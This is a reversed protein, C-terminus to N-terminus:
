LLTTMNEKLEFVSSFLSEKSIIEEATNKYNNM